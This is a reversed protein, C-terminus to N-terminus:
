PQPILNNMQDDLENQKNLQSRARESRRQLREERIARQESLFKEQEPTKKSIEELDGTTIPLPSVLEEVAQAGRKVATGYDGEEFAEKAEAGKQQAAIGAGVFGIYPIIKSKKLYEAIKSAYTRNAEARKAVVEPDEAQTGANKQSRAEQAALREQEAADERVKQSAQQKTLKERALREAEQKTLEPQSLLLEQRQRALQDAELGAAEKGKRSEELAQQRRQETLEPDAEAAKDTLFGGESPLSEIFGEPLTKVYDEDQLLSSLIPIKKSTNSFKLGTDEGFQAPSSDGSYGIIKAVIEQGAQDVRRKRSKQSVYGAAETAQARGSLFARDEKGLGSEELLTENMNRLKYISFEEKEINGGPKLFSVEGISAKLKDNILKSNKKIDFFIPGTTRGESAQKFIDVLVPNLVTVKTTKSKADYVSVIGKKADFNKIDFTSLTAPRYGGFVHAALQLKADQPLTPDQLVGKLKPYVDDPFGLATKRKRFLSMKTNAEYADEGLYNKVERNVHDTSYGAGGFMTKLRVILGQSRARTDPNNEADKIGFESKEIVDGIVQGVDMDRVKMDLVNQGSVPDVIGELDKIFRKTESLVGEKQSGEFEFLGRLTLDRKQDSTLRKEAM